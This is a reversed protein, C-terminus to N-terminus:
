KAAIIDVRRADAEAGGIAFEPKKLVIRNDAVGAAKLADRVAFAREKALELNQDANGTRDAFGSLDVSLAANKKLADVARAIAALAEPGLSKKGTDFLVKALVDGSAAAADQV